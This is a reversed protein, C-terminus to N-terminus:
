QEVLQVSDDSLISKGEDSSTRYVEISWGFEEESSNKEKAWKTKVVVDDLVGLEHFDQPTILLKHRDGNALELGMVYDYEDKYLRIVKGVEKTYRYEFERKQPNDMATYKNNCATISFIITFILLIGFLKNRLM